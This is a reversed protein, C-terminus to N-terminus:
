HTFCVILYNLNERQFIIINDEGCVAHINKKWVMPVLWQGKIKMTFVIWQWYPCTRESSSKKSVFYLSIFRLTIANKIKGLIRAIKWFNRPLDTFFIPISLNPKNGLTQCCKQGWNDLSLSSTVCFEAIMCSIFLPLCQIIWLKIAFKRFPPSKKYDYQVFHDRLCAANKWMWLTLPAFDLRKM